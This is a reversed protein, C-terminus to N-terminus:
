SDAEHFYQNSAHSTKVIFETKNELPTIHRGQVLICVLGGTLNLQQSHFTSDQPDQEHRARPANLLAISSVARPGQSM